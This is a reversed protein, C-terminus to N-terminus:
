INFLDLVEYAMKSIQTIKHESHQANSPDSVYCKDCMYKRCDSCYLTKRLDHDHCIEKRNVKDPYKYYKEATQFM